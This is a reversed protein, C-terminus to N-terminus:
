ERTRRRRPPEPVYWPKDEAATVPEDGDPSEAADTKPETADDESTSEGLPRAEFPVVNAPGSPSKEELDFATSKEIQEAAKGLEKTVDSTHRTVVSAIEKWDERSAGVEKEFDGMVENFDRMLHNAYARTRRIWRALDAAYQPLRDPGVVLVSLVLIVMIEPLGIGFMQM